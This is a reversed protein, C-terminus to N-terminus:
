PLAELRLAGDSSFLVGTFGRRPGLPRLTLGDASLTETFTVAWVGSTPPPTPGADDPTIADPTVDETLAGDALADETAADALTDETAADALADEAAGDLSPDAADDGPDADVDDVPGIDAEADSLEADIVDSTDSGEGGDALTLSDEEASGDDPATNVDEPTTSVDELGQQYRENPSIGVDFVCGSLLGVLM